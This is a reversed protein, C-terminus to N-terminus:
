EPWNGKDIEKPPGHRLISNLTKKSGDGEEGVGHLFILLPFSQISDGGKNKNNGHGHGHGNGNNNTYGKPLYEYFGGTNKNISTSYRPTLVQANSNMFATVLLCVIAVRLACITKPHNM